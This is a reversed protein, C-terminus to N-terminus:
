QYTKGDHKLWGAEHRGQPDRHTWHLVGGQDNWEYEANFAVEDGAELNGLRPALDINHAVLLTQGSALQLIFRQHQDGSTDDSLLRQVRGKGQVQLNSTHNEFASALKEDTSGGGVFPANDLASIDAPLADSFGGFLGAQEAGKALVLVFALMVIKKM